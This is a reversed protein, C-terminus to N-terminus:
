PLAAAIHVLLRCPLLLLLLLLLLVTAQVPDCAAVAADWQAREVQHAGPRQRGAPNHAGGAHRPCSSPMAHCPQLVGHCLVMTHVYGRM